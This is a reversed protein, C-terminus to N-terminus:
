YNHWTTKLTLNQPCDTLLAIPIIWTAANIVNNRESTGGQSENQIIVEEERVEKQINENEQKLCQTKRLNSVFFSSDANLAVWFAPSVTVNEWSQGQM